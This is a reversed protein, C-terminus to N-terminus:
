KEWCFFIFLVLHEDGIYIGISTFRWNAPRNKVNEGIYKKYLKDTYYVSKKGLALIAM